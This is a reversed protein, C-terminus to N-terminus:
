RVTDLEISGAEVSAEIVLRPGSGPGFVHTQDIETGGYRADDVVVTGVDLQTRVEVPTDVPLQLTIQGADASVRYTTDTTVDLRSLDVELAGVDISDVPPLQELTTYSRQPQQWDTSRAMTEPVATVATALLLLWALLAQGRFRGRFAGVVLSLASVLLATGLYTTLTVPVATVRDLVAVGTTALVLAVLTGLLVKGSRRRPSTLAATAAPGPAYIGAPDPVNLYSRVSATHDSLAEARPPAPAVDTAAPPEPWRLSTAATPTRDTWAPWTPRATPPDVEPLRGESPAPETVRSTSPHGAPGDGAPPWPRVQGPHPARGGPGGPAATRPDTTTPGASPQQLQQYRLVTQQWERAATTFPTEPGAFPDPHVPNGTPLASADARRAQQQPRRHGFYWVALVVAAPLLGLPAVSGVTVAVVVCSVVVTVVWFERSQRALGPAHRQVASQEEREDPWLAWAFAYLALGVGASLGLLVAGIRVVLPDVQWKEALAGCVGAITRDGSRRLTWFEDM